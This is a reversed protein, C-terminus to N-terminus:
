KFQGPQYRDIYPVTFEWSIQLLCGPPKAIARANRALWCMRLLAWDPAVAGWKGAVVCLLAVGSAPPYVQFRAPWQPRSPSQMGPGAEENGGLAGGISLLALM